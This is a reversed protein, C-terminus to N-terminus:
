LIGRELCSSEIISANLLISVSSFKSLAGLTVIMSRCLLLNFRKGSSTVSSLFSLVRLTDFLSRESKFGLNARSLLRTRMLMSPFGKFHIFVVRLPAPASGRFCYRLSLSDSFSIALSSIVWPKAELKGPAEWCYSAQSEKKLSNTMFPTVRSKLFLTLIENLEIYRLIQFYDRWFKPELVWIQGRNIERIIGM